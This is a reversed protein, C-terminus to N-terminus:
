LIAGGSRRSVGVIGHCFKEHENGDPNQGRRVRASGPSKRPRVGTIRRVVEAGKAAEAIGSRRSGLSEGGGLMRRFARQAHTEQADTNEPTLAQLM